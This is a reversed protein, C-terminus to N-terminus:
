GTQQHQANRDDNTNILIYVSYSLDKKGPHFIKGAGIALYGSQKFYQPMTVLDPLRQRLTKSDPNDYCRITDPRRGTMFSSRSPGCLAVQAFANTLVLSRAALSDLNPTVM